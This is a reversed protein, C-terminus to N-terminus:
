WDQIINLTPYDELWAFFEVLYMYLFKYIVAFLFSTPIIMIFVIKFLDGDTCFNHKFTYIIKAVLCCKTRFIHCSKIFLFQLFYPSWFWPFYLKLCVDWRHLAYTQFHLYQLLCFVTETCIWLYDYTMIILAAFVIDKAPLIWSIFCFNISISTNWTSSFYKGITIKDEGWGDWVWLMKLYKSSSM